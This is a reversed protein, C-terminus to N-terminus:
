RRLFNDDCRIDRVRRAPVGVVLSRAPFEGRVVAGAGIVSHDGIRTGPLIIAGHGIWVNEGIVIPSSFVGAGQDVEHYNTDFFSVDEAVVCRRGLTVGCTVAFNAGQNIYSDAGIKLVANAGVSILTQRTIGRFTVHEGLEIKGAVDLYPATGDLGLTHVQPGAGLRAFHRQLRHQRWLQCRRAFSRRFRNV